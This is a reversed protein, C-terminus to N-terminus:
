MRLAALKMRATDGSYINKNILDIPFQDLNYKICVENIDKFLKFQKPWLFVEEGNDICELIKEYVEKNQIDNDIVRIKRHFPYNRLQSQQTETYNLGCTAVGNKIFMADIPGELIYIKDYDPDIREVNFVTKDAGMKSLYKPRDDSDLITRTQYFIIQGNLNYFPICFRNKHIVDKLSIWFTKARYKATDLRRRKIFDLSTKIINNDKYFELQQQDDLNISDEPLTLLKIKEKIPEKELIIERINPEYNQVDKLIEEKREGSVQIIWNLPTWGRECNHCYIINDDVIYYCRRKRGRSTGEHCIPCGGYYTNTVKNCRPSVAYQHFKQIIYSEPLVM